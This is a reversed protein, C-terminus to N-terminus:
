EFTLTRKLEKNFNELENSLGKKKGGPQDEPQFLKLLNKTERQCFIRILIQPIQVLKGNEGMATFVPM